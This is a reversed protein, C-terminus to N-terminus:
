LFLSLTHVLRADLPSRGQWSVLKSGEKRRRRRYFEIVGLLLLLLLLLSPM